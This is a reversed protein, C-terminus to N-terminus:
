NKKDKFPYYGEHCITFNYSVVKITRTEFNWVRYAPMNAEYGIIAGRFSKRQSPDKGGERREPPIFCTAATGFAMLKELNAPCRNGQLLNKRSCYSGPKDPDEVTPLMNMTYVKHNEAEGWFRSPAGSRLLSTAVGEFVTRRAREIFANTDSDYPASWEHRVKQEELMKRTEVSTFVGDGDSQLIQVRNGSLGWSDVFIKPTSTYHGTKKTQREAWIYGSGRDLYLQSYRASGISKTYPGSHDTHICVGPLYTPRVGSACAKHNFKHMKADICIECRYQAPLKLLPMCRKLYKLGIDGLKAHYREIESMGPKVYVKALLAEPLGKGSENIVEPLDFGGYVPEVMSPKAEAMMVTSTEGKRRMLTLPYLRSKVDRYDRTAEKGQIVVDTKKYTTLKDQDFVCVMGTDCLEGVSVLKETVDKCFLVNDFGFVEQLNPTYLKMKGVGESKMCTGSATKIDLSVSCYEYAAKVSPYVTRNAGTDAIFKEVVMGVPVDCKTQGKTTSM